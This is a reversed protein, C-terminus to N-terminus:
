PGLFELNCRKAYVQPAVRHDVALMRRSALARRARLRYIPLAFGTRTIWLISTRIPLQQRWKHRLFHYGASFDDGLAPKFADNHIVPLNAVYAGFGKSLATQVIDTGYFHWNPLAEDFRLGSARRLVFLLEDFAVVPEADQVPHGVRRGLSSSWVDGLHRGDRSIGFPAVTAWDGKLTEVVDILRLEWGTPLWVDQHVFIVFPATTADLGRNYAMAASPANREIHVSIGQRIVESSLLNQRLTEDNNCAVVICFDSLSLGMREVGIWNVDADCSCM